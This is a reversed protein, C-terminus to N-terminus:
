RTREYLKRVAIIGTAAAGVINGSVGAGDGAVYLNKVQTQLNNDTKVMSGRFKVEPAYLLNSGNNIGVLVKDLNELGELINIVIRHPLVMSIDGPTVDKLTPHVFSKNIRNWTSRRGNRLDALRQIIPKGGGLVNSLEAIKKIYLTTNEMPETLEIETVFAFNSNNSNHSSNSHGNVCVYDRYNEVGVMGRPCPCFTRIIDDFTKTRMEFITEYMQESFQRMVSEPFEMRVGIETKDYKYEIGYKACISQLWTAGVRGPALLVVKGSINKVTGDKMNTVKVGTCLNKEVLLDTVEQECLLEVGNDILYKEFNKIISILKDTGVHQTRRIYLRIDEKQAKEVLDSAKSMDKPYFEADVGFSKFIEEVEKVLSEYDDLTVLHLSKTHSLVPTYHLKGDSYTGAGGFGCMVDNKQRKSISKGKEILLIKLKKKSQLLKYAAFMGAPGGGVIIIDYM